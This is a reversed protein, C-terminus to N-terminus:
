LKTSSLEDKVPKWTVLVAVSPIEIVLLTLLACTDIVFQTNASKLLPPFEPPATKGLPFVINTRAEVFKVLM